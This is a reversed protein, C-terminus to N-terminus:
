PHYLCHCSSVIIDNFPFPYACIISTSVRLSELNLNLSDKTSCMPQPHISIGNEGKKLLLVQNNLAHFAMEMFLQKQVSKTICSEQDKAKTVLDEYDVKTKNM